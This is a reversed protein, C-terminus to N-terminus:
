NRGYVRKREYRFFGDQEELAITNAEHKFYNKRLTNLQKEREQGEYEYNIKERAEMYLLGNSWRQEKRKDMEEMNQIQDQSFGMESRIHNIELQRQDPEMEKLEQQVADLGLFVKALMDTTKLVYAEPSDEFTESLTNKYIELKDNITTDQSNDLFSLTDHMDQRREDFGLVEESWIDMADEGFVEKRKQWLKGQKELDAMKTLEFENDQLWLKYKEFQALTTMIEDAFKPFTMKLINYFLQEGDKPYLTLIFNKVKLLKIQTNKEGITKSYTVKLEKVLQDVVSNKDNEIGELSADEVTSFTSPQKKSTLNATNEANALRGVIQNDIPRNKEIFFDNTSFKIVSLVLFILAATFGIKFKNTFSKKMINSM